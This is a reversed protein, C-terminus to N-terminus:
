RSAAGWPPMTGKRRSLAPSLVLVFAPAPTRGSRPTVRQHGSGNRVSTLLAPFRSFSVVLCTREGTTSRGSFGGFDNRHPV